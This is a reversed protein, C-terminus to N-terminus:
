ILMYPGESFETASNGLAKETKMANFDSGAHYISPWARTSTLFYYCREDFYM